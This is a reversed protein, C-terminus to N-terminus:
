EWPRYFQHHTKHLDIGQLRMNSPVDAGGISLPKIHDVQYGPPVKGKSLWQNMWKPSKGSEAMQKLFASKQAQNRVTGTVIGNAEKYAAWAKGADARSSFQGKTM